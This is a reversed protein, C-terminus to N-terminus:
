FKDIRDVSDSVTSFKFSKGINVQAFLPPARPSDNLPVTSTIKFSGIIIFSHFTRNM